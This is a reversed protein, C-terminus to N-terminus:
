IDLDSGVSNGQKKRTQAEEKYKEVQEKTMYELFFNNATKPANDDYLKKIAKFHGQLSAYADTDFFSKDTRMRVVFRGGRDVKQLNDFMVEDIPMSTISFDNMWLGCVTKNYEKKNTNSM